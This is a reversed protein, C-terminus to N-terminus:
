DTYLSDDPSTDDIIVGNFGSRPGVSSPVPTRLEISSNHRNNTSNNTQQRNRNVSEMWQFSRSFLNLFNSSTRNNNTSISEGEDSSSHNSNDSLLARQDIPVSRRSNSDVRSSILRPSDLTNQVSPVPPVRDRISYVSNRSNDEDSLVIIRSNWRVDDNHSPSSEIEEDEGFMISKVSRKCLPCIVAQKLWEDICSVHFSHGCPDPLVRIKDGITIENLCISCENSYAIASEDSKM